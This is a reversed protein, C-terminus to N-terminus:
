FGRAATRMQELLCGTRCRYGVAYCTAAWRLTGDTANFRVITNHQGSCGNQTSCQSIAYVYGGAYLIDGSAWNSQDNKNLGRLQAFVKWNAENPQM